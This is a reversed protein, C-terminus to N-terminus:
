WKTNWFYLFNKFYNMFENWWAYKQFTLTFLVFKSAVERLTLFQILNSTWAHNLPPFKSFPTKWKFFFIVNTFYQSQFTAFNKEKRSITCGLKKNSVNKKMNLAIHFQKFRISLLFARGIYFEYQVIKYFIERNFFVFWIIHM